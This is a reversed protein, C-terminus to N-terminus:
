DGFGHRYEFATENWSGTGPPRIRIIIRYPGARAMQFYNGFTVTQNITMPELRKTEGALGLPEVRAEVEVDTIRKGSDSNFLAVVLHHAGRAVKGDGHQAEHGLVMQAPVVGYYVETGNISGHLSERAAVPPGAALLLM